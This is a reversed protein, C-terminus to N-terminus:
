KEVPSVIAVGIKLPPIDAGTNYPLVIPEPLIKADPFRKHVWNPTQSIAPKGIVNQEFQDPLSWLIIGGHANLDADTAWPGTPKTNVDNINSWYFLVTPRDKMTIAANGACVWDGTIYPCTAGESETRTLLRSYWIEDCAAGLERMPFHFRHPRGTWYPTFVSQVILAAILFTQVFVLRVTSRFFNKRNDTTPFSLFVLVGFYPWFAAGYEGNLSIGTLASLLLHLCLPIAMCFLLFNRADIKRLGNEVVDGIRKRGGPLLINPLLILTPLILYGAECLFFRLPYVVHATWGDIPRNGSRMYSFTSFGDLYLWFLHPLFVLFAILATLYPGIHKWHDHKRSFVALFCLIAIVLFVASYKSHFALGIALGSVCWYFMRDTQIAQFVCLVALSWFAILTTNQNYKVSEITFFWYPLMAFTGILALRESLVQRAFTWVSWLTLVMCLQSAIFPAAFSRGTLINLSELLWAPLMPHKRTSLVWEKGALQLEVVDPRYGPQLLTPLLIWLLAFFGVVSWFLLTSQDPSLDAPKAPLLNESSDQISM